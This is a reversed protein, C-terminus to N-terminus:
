RVEKLQHTAIRLAIEKGHQNGVAFCLLYLPNNRSNRLVGPEEAMGAFADVYLKQFPTKKLATTYSRLYGALVDLKRTTWDGGFRHEKNRRKGGM